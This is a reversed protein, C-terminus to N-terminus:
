RRRVPPPGSSRRWRALLKGLHTHLHLGTDPSYANPHWTHGGPAGPAINLPETEYRAGPVEIPRGTKVDVGTNWNVETFPDGSILKGTAAEIM